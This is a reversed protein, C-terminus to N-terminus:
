TNPTPEVQMPFYAKGSPALSSDYRAPTLGSGDDVPASAVEPAKAVGVFKISEMVAETEETSDSVTKVSLSDSSFIAASEAGLAASSFSDSEVTETFTKRSIITRTTTVTRQIEYTNM